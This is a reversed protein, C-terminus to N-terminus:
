AEDTWNARDLGGSQPGGKIWGGTTSALVEPIRRPNGPAWLIHLGALGHAQSPKLWLRVTSWHVGLDHAIAHRKRGRSAMLVAQCRDRLRRDPTRKCPSELAEQEQSTFAIRRM